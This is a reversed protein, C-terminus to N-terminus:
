LIAESPKLRRNLPLVRQLISGVGELSGVSVGKQPNYEAMKPLRNITKSRKGKLAQDKRHAWLPWHFFKWLNGLKRALKFMYNYCKGTFTYITSKFRGRGVSWKLPRRIRNIM